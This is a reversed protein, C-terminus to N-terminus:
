KPKSIRSHIDGRRVIAAVLDRVPNHSAPHAAPDAPGVLIVLARVMTQAEQLLRTDGRDEATTAIKRWVSLQAPTEGDEGYWRAIVELAALDEQGDATLDEIAGARAGLKRRVYARAVRAAHSSPVHELAVTYVREAERLDGHRTRLSGLGLYAEECTSDLGLAEMYRRVAVDDERSAEHARAERVLELASSAFVFSTTCETALLTLAFITTRM